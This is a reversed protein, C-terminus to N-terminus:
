GPIDAKARALLEKEALEALKDYAEACCRMHQRAEESALGEATTRAEEARERWHKPDPRKSDPVAAEM